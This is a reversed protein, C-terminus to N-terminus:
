LGMCSSQAEDQLVFWWRLHTQGSLGYDFGVTDLVGFWPPGVRKRGNQFNGCVEFLSLLTHRGVFPPGLIM